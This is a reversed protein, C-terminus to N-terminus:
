LGAELIRDLDPEPPRCLGQALNAGCPHFLLMHADLVVADGRIAHVHQHGEEDRVSCIRTKAVRAPPSGTRRRLCHSWVSQLLHRVDVHGLASTWGTAKASGKPSRRRRIKRRGSVTTAKGRDVSSSTSDRDVSGQGVTLVLRGDGRSLTAAM